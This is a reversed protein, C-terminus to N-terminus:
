KRIKALFSKELHKSINNRTENVEEQIPTRDSRQYTLRLTVSKKNVGLKEDEFIDIVEINRVLPSGAKRVASIIGELPTSNSFIASIDEIIPPYKPIPKYTKASSPLDYVNSLNIEAASIKGKIDFYDTTKSSLIGVTGIKQRDITIEATEDKEFLRHNESLKQWKAEKNQTQFMQEILGKIEYFNSNQLCVSLMLDQKPLENPNKLYTKAIEFIKLDSKLNQNKGIVQALSILLTPRMFQWEETLPNSLEVMGKEKIQALNLLDKSIISYTMVETLGQFKLSEKLNITKKLEDNSKEPIPGEPLKSELNHYGYIRAVEEILDVDDEIDEARWSPATATIKSSSTNATFGLLKLIKLASGPYIDTNLYSKLKNLELSIQKTKRKGTYIDILESAIKAGSTKKALYVARSLAQPIFETDVGKEFRSAAETRFSLAQTTKRIALQNYAQVFLIVRKTRNSIQSNAGGMIGCLDILRKQDEIVIAGKPLKRTQNDLTVIKEGEESERLIMKANKVKDYDFTHMPQGLELMLYNSIDVINNISRTGAAELRNRIIAPSPKITVNDMVIATFRSCLSKNKIVVDLKLRKSIDPELILNLGKPEILKAQENRYALIANAERAVGFVSAADPRNSTVEVDFIFDEKHKTIREVSPGSLSLHNALTKAALDTKLYERLWSVPFKINM